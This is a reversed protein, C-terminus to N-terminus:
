TIIFLHTGDIFKEVCRTSSLFQKENDCKDPLVAM